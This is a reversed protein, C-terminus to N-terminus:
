LPWRYGIRFSFITVASTPGFWWGPTDSTGLAAQFAEPVVTYYLTPTYEFYFRGRTSVPVEVGAIFRLGLPSLTDLAVPWGSAHVIRLFGGIALYPRLFRDEPSLYMGAQLAFVELPDSLVVQTQSLALGLMYTTVGLRVFVAPDPYQVTVDIGPARADTLSVELARGGSKEQKLTIERDESVFVRENVPQYGRLTARLAYERNLPLMISATGAEDVRLPTKGLGTVVTGRLARVTLRAFSATDGGAVTREAMPFKGALAPVVDSWTEQALGSASGWSTRSVTLDAVTSGAIPDVARIKVHASTWDGEVSILAWCDAGASDALSHLDGDSTHKADGTSELIVLSPDTEQIREDLSRAILLADAPSFASGAAPVVDLLLRRPLLTVKGQAPAFSASLTMLALLLAGAKM